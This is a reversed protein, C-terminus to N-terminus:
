GSCRRGHIDTLMQEAEDEGLSELDALAEL